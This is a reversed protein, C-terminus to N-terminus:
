RWPLWVESLCGRELQEDKEALAAERPLAAGWWLPLWAMAALVVVAAVGQGLLAGEDFCSEV